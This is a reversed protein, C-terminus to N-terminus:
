PGGLCRTHCGVATSVFITIWCLPARWCAIWQFHFGVSCGSGSIFNKLTSYGWSWSAQVKAATHWLFCVDSSEYILDRPLLLDFRTANLPELPRCIGFYSLLMIGLFRHWGWLSAVAVMARFLVLPLPTRHVTPELSEWRVVLQWARGMFPRFDPQWRQVAALMHRFLYLSAGESFLERGFADLLEVLTQPCLTWSTM